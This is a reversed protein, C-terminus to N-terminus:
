GGDTGAEQGCVGDATRFVRGSGGGELRVCAPFLLPLHTYSVAARRNRYEFLAQKEQQLEDRRREFRERTSGDPSVYAKGGFGDVIIEEGTKIHDMVDPVGSVAPIELARALIAAHSNVGGVETLIGVVKSSDMSATMSPTLEKAVIVSGEPLLSLGRATSGTLAMLLRIRIDDLDAARQRMLEDEMLEFMQRYRVCVTEVAWECSCKETSIM